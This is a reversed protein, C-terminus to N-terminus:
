RREGGDRRGASPAPRPATSGSRGAPPPPAAPGGPGRARRRRRRRRRPRGRPCTPPGPRAATKSGLSRWATLATLSARRSTTRAGHGPSPWGPALSAYRAGDHRPAKRPRRRAPDSTPAGTSPASLVIVNGQDSTTPAACHGGHDVFDADDIRRRRPRRRPSPRAPRARWCASHSNQLGADARQCPQADGGRQARTEAAGARGRRRGFALSM